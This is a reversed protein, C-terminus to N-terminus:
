SLWSRLATCCMAPWFLLSPARMGTYEPRMPVVGTAALQIRTRIAVYRREGIVLDVHVRHVVGDPLERQSEPM